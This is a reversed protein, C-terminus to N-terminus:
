ADYRHNCLSIISIRGLLLNVKSLIIESYAFKPTINSLICNISAKVGVYSMVCMQSM